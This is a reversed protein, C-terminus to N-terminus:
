LVLKRTDANFTLDNKAIEIEEPVEEAEGM